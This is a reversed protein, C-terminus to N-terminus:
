WTCFLLLKKGAKKAWGALYEPTIENPPLDVLEFADTKAEAIKEAREAIEKANKLSSIVEVKLKAFDTKKDKEKKFFGLSYAGLQFGVLAPELLDEPYSIPFDLVAVKEVM